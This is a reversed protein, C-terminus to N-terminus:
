AAVRAEVDMSTDIQVFADVKRIGWPNVRM